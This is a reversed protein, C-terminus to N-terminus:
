LWIKKSRLPLVTSGKGEWIVLHFLFNHNQWYISSIFELAKLFVSFLCFLVVGEAGAISHCKINSFSLPLNWLSCTAAPHTHAGVGCHLPKWCQALLQQAVTQTNRTDACTAWLFCRGPIPLTHWVHQGSFLRKMVSHLAWFIEKFEM